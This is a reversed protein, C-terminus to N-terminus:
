LTKLFENKMKTYEEESILGSNKMETIEQLAEVTSSKPMEKKINKATQFGVDITQNKMQEILQTTKAVVDDANQIYHFNVIGFSSRLMITKGSRIKDLYGNSITLYDIREIPINISKASILICYSGVIHKQSVTFSTLGCQKKMVAIAIIPMGILAFVILVVIAANGPHSEKKETWHKYIGKGDWGETEFSFNMGYWGVEKMDYAPYSDGYVTHGGEDHVTNTGKIFGVVIFIVAIIIYIGFIMKRKQSLLRRVDARIIENSKNEADGMKNKSDIHM